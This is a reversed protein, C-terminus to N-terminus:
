PAHNSVLSCQSTMAVWLRGTTPQVLRRLSSNLLKTLFYTERLRERFLKAASHMMKSKRATDFQDVIVGM